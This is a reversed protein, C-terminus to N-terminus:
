QYRIAATKRLLRRYWEIVERADATMPTRGAAEDHQAELERIRACCALELGRLEEVTFACTLPPATV